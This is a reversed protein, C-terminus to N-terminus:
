KQLEKRLAEVRSEYKNLIADVSAVNGKCARAVDYLRVVYESSQRNSASKGPSRPLAPCSRLAKPVNLEIQKAIVQQETCGDNAAGMLVVSLLALVRIKM